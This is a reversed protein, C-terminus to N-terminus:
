KYTDHIMIKCTIFIKLKTQMYKEFLYNNVM